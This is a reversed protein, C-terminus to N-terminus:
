WNAAIAFHLVKSPLDSTVPRLNFSFRLNQREQQEQWRGEQLQGLVLRMFVQRSSITCETPRETRSGVCWPLDEPPQDAMRAPQPSACRRGNRYIRRM